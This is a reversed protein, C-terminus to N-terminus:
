MQGGPSFNLVYVLFTTVFVIFVEFSIWMLFFIKIFDAHVPRDTSVSVLQLEEVPLPM